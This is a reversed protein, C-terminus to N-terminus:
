TGRIGNGLYKEDDPLREAAELIQKEDEDGCRRRDFANQAAEREEIRM